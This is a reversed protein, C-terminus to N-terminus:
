RKANRATNELEKQEEYTTNQILLVNKVSTFDTSLRVKLSYFNDDLQNKSGEVVGVMIGEPFMDSYGSTVITDGISFSEYKPYDTLYAYRPDRDEWKLIGFTNTRMVKCGIKSDPNLVPQVISYHDSVYTVIGVLGDQSSVGMESFVGDNAGKDITIYNSAKSVTNNVVKASILNYGTKRKSFKKLLIDTKISDNEIFSYYDKLALIEKTMEMNQEKLKENEEKLSFYSTINESFAYISGSVVNSSNFFVSKSYSNHSFLLYFCIIELLIFLFWPSNKRLFEFLNHM